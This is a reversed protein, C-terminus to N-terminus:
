QVDTGGDAPALPGKRYSLFRKGSSTGAKYLIHNLFCKENTM